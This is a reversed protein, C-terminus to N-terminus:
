HRLRHGDGGGVEDNNAALAAAAAAAAAEVGDIRNLETQLADIGSMM